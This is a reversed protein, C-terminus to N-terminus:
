DYVGLRTAEARRVRECYGAEEGANTPSVAAVVQSKAKLVGRAAHAADMCATEAVHVFHELPTAIADRCTKQAVRVTPLFTKIAKELPELTIDGAHWNALAPMDSVVGCADALLTQISGWTERVRMTLQENAM